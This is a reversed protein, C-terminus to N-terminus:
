ACSRMDISPAYNRFDVPEIAILIRLQPVLQLMHKLVCFHWACPNPKRGNPLLCACICAHAM